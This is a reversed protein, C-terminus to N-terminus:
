AHIETAEMLRRTVPGVEFASGDYGRVPRVGAIANTVFVEDAAHVDADVLDAEAVPVGERGCTEIVIRRMVGRVGCAVIAPTTVRGGRVVFVNSSTGGVIRGDRRKQLGEDATGDALELEALVQELRCLHKLGALRENEGIPVDVSRLVIGRTYHSADREPWPFIGLIRAPEANAPPRYGRGGGGRTVILKVVARELGAVEAGIEAAVTDLNPRPIALRDCGEVLREFHYELRPVSGGRAAMTEFLGDGYALGRDSADVRGGSVGNVVWRGSV